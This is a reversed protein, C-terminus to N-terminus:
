FRNRQFSMIVAISMYEGNKLERDDDDENTTMEKRERERKYSVDSNSSCCWGAVSSRMRVVRVPCRKM